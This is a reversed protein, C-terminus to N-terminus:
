PATGCVKCRGDAGIVGVCAGDSCLSRQEWEALAGLAAPASPMLAALDNAAARLEADADSEGDGDHADDGDDGADDGADDGDDGDDDGDDDGAVADDAGLAADSALGRTREEGWNPAVRGCVRCTGDDGILGVCSGDPCLLRQDWEAM